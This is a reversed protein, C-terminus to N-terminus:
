VANPKEEGRDLLKPGNNTIERMQEIGLRIATQTVTAEIETAAHKITDEMSKEFQKEVFPIGDDIASAAYQLKRHIERLVTRGIRGSEIAQNLDDMAARLDAVCEKTHGRLDARFKDRMSAPKPPEPMPEGAIRHLTCPVGDGINPRGILEVLQAESLFVEILQETGFWWERSLDRHKEARKITLTAFHNHKFESGVLTAGTSSCHSIGVMGFSPHTEKDQFLPKM